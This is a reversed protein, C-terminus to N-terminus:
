AEETNEKKADLYEVVFLGFAEIINERANNLDRGQTICGPVEKIKTTWWADDGKESILTLNITEEVKM